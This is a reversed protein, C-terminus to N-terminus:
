TGRRTAAFFPFEYNMILPYVIFYVAFVLFLISFEVLLIKKIYEFEEIGKQYEGKKFYRPYFIYAGVVCSLPPLITYRTTTYHGSIITVVLLISPAILLVISPLTKGSTTINRMKKDVIV